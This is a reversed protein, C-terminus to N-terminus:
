PLLLAAVCTVLMMFYDLTKPRGVGTMIRGACWMGWFVILLWGTVDMVVGLIAVISPSSGLNAPDSGVTRGISRCRLLIPVGVRVRVACRVNTADLAWGPSPANIPGAPPVQVRM